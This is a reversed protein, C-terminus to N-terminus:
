EVDENSFDWFRIEIDIEDDTMGAIRLCKEAEERAYRTFSGYEARLEENEKWNESMYGDSYVIKGDMEYILGGLDILKQLSEKNQGKGMRKVVTELRRM